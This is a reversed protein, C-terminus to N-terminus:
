LLSPELIEMTTSWIELQIKVFSNTLIFIGIIELHYAKNAYSVDFNFKGGTTPYSIL